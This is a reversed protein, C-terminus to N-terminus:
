RGAAQPRAIIRRFKGSTASTQPREAARTIDIGALGHAALFRTLNSCAHDWAQGGPMGPELDLRLLLSAPGTQVLQSRHVGSTQDLISGIALPLVSVM